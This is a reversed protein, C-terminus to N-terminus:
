RLSVVHSCYAAYKLDGAKMSVGTMAAKLPLPSLQGLILMMNPLAALMLDVNNPLKHRM